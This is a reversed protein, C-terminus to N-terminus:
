LGDLWAAMKDAAIDHLKQIKVESAQVITKLTWWIGAHIPKQTGEGVVEAAYTVNSGFAGSWGHPGLPKQEFIDPLGVQGGNMSVGFSRGLTGTRVYRSNPRPPYPPTKEWLVHMSAENTKKLVEELQQPYQAMRKMLDPPMTKITITEPM